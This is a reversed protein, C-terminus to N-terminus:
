GGGGGGGGGFVVGDGGESSEGGLVDPGELGWEAVGLPSGHVAEGVRNEGSHDLLEFGM